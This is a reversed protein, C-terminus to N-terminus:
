HKNKKGKPIQKKGANQCNKKKKTHIPFNIQSNENNEGFCIRLIFYSEKNFSILVEHYRIAIFNAWRNSAAANCKHIATMLDKTDRPLSYYNLLVLSKSTNDDTAVSLNKETSVLRNFGYAAEM